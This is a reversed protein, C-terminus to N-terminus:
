AKLKPLKAFLYRDAVADYGTSIDFAERIMRKWRQIECDQTEGKEPNHWKISRLENGDISVTQGSEVRRYMDQIVNHTAEKVQADQQQKIFYNIRIARLIKFYEAGSVEKAGFKLARKRRKESLDYHPIGGRSM